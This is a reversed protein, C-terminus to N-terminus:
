LFPLIWFVLHWNTEPLYYSFFFSQIDIGLYDKIFGPFVMRKDYGNHFSEERLMYSVSQGLTISSSIALSAWLLFKKWIRQDLDTITYIDLVGRISIFHIIPLIAIWYRGVPCAGLSYTIHIINQVHGSAILLITFFGEGFKNRYIMAFGIPFFYVLPNLPLIGHDVDFIYYGLYRQVINKLSTDQSSYHSISGYLAINYGIFLLISIFYASGGTLVTKIEHRMQWAWYSFIILSAAAFKIHAFPLLACLIPIVKSYKQFSRITLLAYSLFIIASALTEPYIQNSYALTPMSVLFLCGILIIFFGKKKRISLYCVLAGTISSLFIMSIKAVLWPIPLITGHQNLVAPLLVASLLPYHIPPEAGDKLVVTHHDFNRFLLTNHINQYQNRLDLDHDELMSEAILLYQPEDGTMQQRLQSLALFYLSFIFLSLNTFSLFKDRSFSRVAVLVAILSSVFILLIISYFLKSESSKKQDVFIVESEALPEKLSFKLNAISRESAFEIKTPTATIQWKGLHNSGEFATLTIPNKTFGTVFFTFKKDKGKAFCAGFNQGQVSYSNGEQWLNIPPTECYTNGNLLYIIPPFLSLFFFFLPVWLIAKRFNLASM